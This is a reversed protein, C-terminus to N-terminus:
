YTDVRYIYGINAAGKNRLVGYLNNGDGKILPCLPNYGVGSADDSFEGIKSYAMTNIDFKWIGGKNYSGGSAAIGYFVGDSVELVKFVPYGLDMNYAASSTFEEFVFEGSGTFAHLVETKMTAPSIRYFMGRSQNNYVIDSVFTNFIASGHENVGYYYGDNGLTLGGNLQVPTGVNEQILIDYGYHPNGGLSAMTSLEDTAPDYSMIAGNSKDGGFESTYLLQQGNVSIISLLGIGFLLIQKM